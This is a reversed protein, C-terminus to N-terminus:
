YLFWVCLRSKQALTEPVLSLVPLFLLMTLHRHSPLPSNSWCDWRLATRLDGREWYVCKSGISKSVGQIELTHQPGNWSIIKGLLKVAFRFSFVPWHSPESPSPVQRWAWCELNLGQSEGPLLFFCGGGCTTRQDGHANRYVCIGVCMDRWVCTGEFVCM